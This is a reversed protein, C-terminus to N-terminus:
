FVSILLLLYICITANELVIKFLRLQEQIEDDKRDLYARIDPHHSPSEDQRARSFSYLFSSSFLLLSFSCDSFLEDFIGIDAFFMM